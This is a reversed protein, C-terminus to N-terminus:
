PIEEGGTEFIELGVPDELSALVVLPRCPELVRQGLGARFQNRYEDGEVRPAISPECRGATRGHPKLVEGATV